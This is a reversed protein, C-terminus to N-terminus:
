EARMASTAAPWAAELPQASSVVSFRALLLGSFHQNQASRAEYRRMKALPAQDKSSNQQPQAGLHKHPMDRRHLVRASRNSVLRQLLSLHQKPGKSYPVARERRQWDHAAVPSCCATRQLAWRSDGLAPRPRVLPVPSARRPSLPAPALPVAWATAPHQLPSSLRLSAFALDLMVLASRQLLAVLPHELLLRFHSMVSDLAAQLHSHHAEPPSHEAAALMKLRHSPMAM